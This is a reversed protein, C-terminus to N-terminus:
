WTIGAEDLLAQYRPNDGLLDSAFQMHFNAAWGYAGQRVLNAFLEIAHESQGSQAYAWILDRDTGDFDPFTRPEGTESYHIVAQYVDPTTVREQSGCPPHSLRGAPRQPELLEHGHALPGGGQPLHGAM